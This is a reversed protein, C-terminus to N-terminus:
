WEYGKSYNIEIVADRRERLWDQSGRAGRGGFLLRWGWDWSGEGRGAVWLLLSSKLCEKTFIIIYIM